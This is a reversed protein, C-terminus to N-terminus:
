FSPNHISYSKISVCTMVWGVFSGPFGLCLLMEELFIWEASDYVKYLYIKIM